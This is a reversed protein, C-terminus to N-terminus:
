KTVENSSQFKEVANRVDNLLSDVKQITTLVKDVNKTNLFERLNAQIETVLIDGSQKTAVEGIHCLFKVLDEPSRKFTEAAKLVNKYQDVYKHFQSFDSFPDFKKEFTKM